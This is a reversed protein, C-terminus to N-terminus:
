LYTNIELLYFFNKNGIKKVIREIIKDIKIM